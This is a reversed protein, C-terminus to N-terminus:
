ERSLPVTQSTGDERELVVSASEMKAVRWGGIMDGVEVRFSTGDGKKRLLAIARDGDRVIGLLDYSPPPQRAAVQRPPQRDAVAVAPPRRRSPAFLPREVWDKLEAKDLSALPNRLKPEASVAEAPESSGDNSTARPVSAQTRAAPVSEGDSTRRNDLYVLVGLALCALILLLPRNKKLV